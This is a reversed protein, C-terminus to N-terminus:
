RWISKFVTPQAHGATQMSNTSRKVNKGRKRAYKEENEPKVELLAAMFDIPLGFRLVSEIFIRIVKL